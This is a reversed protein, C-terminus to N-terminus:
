PMALCVLPLTVSCRCGQEPVVQLAIHSSSDVAQKEPMQIAGLKPEYSKHARALNRLLASTWGRPWVISGHDLAWISKSIRPRVNAGGKIRERSEPVIWPALFATTVRSVWHTHKPSNYIDMLANRLLRMTDSRRTWSGDNSTSECVSARMDIARPIYLTKGKAKNNSILM